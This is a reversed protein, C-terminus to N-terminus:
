PSLWAGCNVARNLHCRRGREELGFLPKGKLGGLGGWPSSISHGEPRDRAHRLKFHFADNDSVDLHLVIVEM